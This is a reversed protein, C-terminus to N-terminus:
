LRDGLGPQKDEYWSWAELLELRAKKLFETRYSM